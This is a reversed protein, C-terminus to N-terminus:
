RIQACVAYATVAGAGSSCICSWANNGNWISALLYNAGGGACVCGGGLVYKTGTCTATATNGAQTNFPKEYGMKINGTGIDLKEAPSTTGIGVNGNALLVMDPGVAAANGAHFELTSSSIGFGYFSNGAANQYVALKKGASNGLDLRHYPNTTGIGVNGAPTIKIVDTAGGVGLAMDWAGFKIYAMDSVDVRRMIYHDATSWGSGNARRKTFIRIRDDNGTLLRFSGLMKTDGVITGLVTEKVELKAEPSSTGIGVNGTNTNYIDAGSTAWGGGGVTQWSGTDDCVYVGAGVVGDDYYMEGENCFVPQPSPHLKLTRYVG